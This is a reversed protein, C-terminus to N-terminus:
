KWGTDCEKYIRSSLGVPIAQGDSMSQRSNEETEEDDVRKM